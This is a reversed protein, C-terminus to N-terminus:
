RHEEGTIYAESIKVLLYFGYPYSIAGFVEILSLIELCIEFIFHESFSIKMNLFSSVCECLM